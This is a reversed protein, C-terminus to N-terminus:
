LQTKATDNWQALLQSKNTKKTLSSNTYIYTIGVLFLYNMIVVVVAVIIIIIIIIIITIIIIIIFCIIIIIIIIVKSCSSGSSSNEFEQKHLQANQIIHFLHTSMYTWGVM